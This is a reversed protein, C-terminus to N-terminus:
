PASVHRNGEFEIYLMVIYIKIYGPSYMVAIDYRLWSLSKIKAEKLKTGYDRSLNSKNMEQFM